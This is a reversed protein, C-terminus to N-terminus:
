LKTKQFPFEIILSTLHFHIPECQTQVSFNFQANCETQSHPACNKKKVVQGQKAKGM